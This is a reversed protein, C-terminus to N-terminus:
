NAYLFYLLTPQGYPLSCSTNTINVIAVTGPTVTLLSASYRYALKPDGVLQLFAPHQNRGTHIHFHLPRHYQARLPFGYITQQKNRGVYYLTIIISIIFDCIPRRRTIAKRSPMDKRIRSPIAMGSLYM